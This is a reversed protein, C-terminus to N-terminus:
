YIEYFYLLFCSLNCKQLLLQCVLVCAVNVKFNRDGLAYLALSTRQQAIESVRSVYGHSYYWHIPSLKSIIILTFVIDNTSNKIICSEFRKQIRFILISYTNYCTYTLIRRFSMTYSKMQMKTWFYKRLSPVFFIFM